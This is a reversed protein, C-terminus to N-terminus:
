HQVTHRPNGGRQHKWAFSLLWLASVTSTGCPPNRIFGAGRRAQLLVSCWLIFTVLPFRPDNWFIDFDQSLAPGPLWLLGSSSRKVGASREDRQPPDCHRWMEMWGRFNWILKLLKGSRIRGPWSPPTPLRRQAKSLWSLRPFKTTSTTWNRSCNTQQWFTSHFLLHLKQELYKTKIKEWGNETLRRECRLWPLPPAPRQALLWWLYLRSLDATMVPREWTQPANSAGALRVHQQIDDHQAGILRTFDKFRLIM